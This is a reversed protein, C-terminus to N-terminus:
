DSPSTWGAELVRQANGGLIKRVDSEPVGHSLLMATVKGMQSSDEVDDPPDTFGDFDTGLAVNDFSGCVTHIHEITQWIADLGNKPDDPHLWYSMFIVGILGGGAAVARIEEDALNYPDPNVGQVGVHSAVIPRQGVEAMVAQRAEPTCHTVDVLMGLQTMRRVVERGYDTLPVNGSWGFDYPCVRNVVYSPPIGRTQAAIGNQFFHCLTVMAVGRKALRDLNAADGQLVHAGEVTHVVAIKAAARIRSVDVASRALEVRDPRRQVERELADMMEFLRTIRDGTMLRAYVPVAVLGALTMALCHRWLNRRFLYAKLSPHVHIDTLPADRHLTTIQASDSPM